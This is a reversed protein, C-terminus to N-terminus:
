APLKLAGTSAQYVLACLYAGDITTQNLFREFGHPDDFRDPMTVGFMRCVRGCLDRKIEPSIARHTFVFDPGYRVEVAEPAHRSGISESVIGMSGTTGENHALSMSGDASLWRSISYRMDIMGDFGDFSYQKAIADVEKVSPGDTWSVDLCRDSTVSFRTGPFTRALVARLCIAADAPTIGGKNRAKAYVDAVTRCKDALYQKRRDAKAKASEVLGTLWADIRAHMEEPTSFAHHWDHKNRKGGYAIALPRPSETFWAIGYQNSKEGTYSQPRYRDTFLSRKM